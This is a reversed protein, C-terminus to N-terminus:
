GGKGKLAEDLLMQHLIEEYVNEVHIMSTHDAFIFQEYKQLEQLALSLLPCPGLHWNISSRHSPQTGSGVGEKAQAASPWQDGGEREGTLMGSRPSPELCKLATSLSGAIKIVELGQRHTQPGRKRKRKKMTISTNREEKKKKKFALLVKGLYTNCM